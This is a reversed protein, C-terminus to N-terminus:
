LLAQKIGKEYGIRKLTEKMLMLQHPLALGTKSMVQFHFLLWLQAMSQGKYGFRHPTEIVNGQSDIDGMLFPISACMDRIISKITIKANAEIADHNPLRESSISSLKRLCEILYYQLFISSTRTWNWLNATWFNHYIHVAEDPHSRRKISLRSADVASYSWASSAGEAWLWHNSNTLQIKAVLKTLAARHASLSASSDDFPPYGTSALLEKAAAKIRCVSSINSMVRRYPVCGRTNMFWHEEHPPPQRGLILNRIQLFACVARSIQEGYETEFQRPGRLHLLRDLGSGHVGFAQSEKASINEFMGLVFIACLTEDKL